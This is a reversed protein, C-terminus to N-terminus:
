RTLASQACRHARSMKRILGPSCPMCFRLIPAGRPYTTARVTPACRRGSAIVEAQRVPRRTRRCRRRSSRRGSYRRCKRKGGGVGRCGGFVRSTFCWPICNPFAYHCLSALTQGAAKQRAAASNRSLPRGSGVRAVAAAAKAGARSSSTPRIVPHIAPALGAAMRGGGPPAPRSTVAAPPSPKPGARDKTDAM